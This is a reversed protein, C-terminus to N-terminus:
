NKRFGSQTKGLLKKQEIFTVLRSAAMTEMVKGITSTLSIPRHSQPMQPDKDPKLLPIITSEKWQEPLKHEKWSKNMLRLLHDM